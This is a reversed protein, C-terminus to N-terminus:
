RSKRTQKKSIQRNLAKRGTPGRNTKILPHIGTLQLAPVPDLGDLIIHM